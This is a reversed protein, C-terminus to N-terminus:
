ATARAKPQNAMFNKEVYDFTHKIFGKQGLLMISNIVTEPTEPKILTSYLATIRKLQEEEEQDLIVTIKYEKM